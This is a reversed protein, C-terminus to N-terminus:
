IVDFVGDLQRIKGTRLISETEFNSHQFTKNKFDEFWLGELLSVGRHGVLRKADSLEGIAKWGDDIAYARKHCFMVGLKQRLPMVRMHKRKAILPVFSLVFRSIDM